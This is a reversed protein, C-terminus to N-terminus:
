SCPSPRWCSAVVAFSGRGGALQWPKPRALKASTVSANDSPPPCRRDGYDRIGPGEDRGWAVDSRSRPTVRLPSCFLQFYGESLPNYKLYNGGADPVDTYGPQCVTGFGYTPDYRSPPLELM